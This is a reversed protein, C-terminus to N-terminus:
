PEVVELSRGSAAERGAVACLTVEPAAAAEHRYVPKGERLALRGTPTLAKMWVRRGEPDEADVDLELEASARVARSPVTVRRVRPAAPEAAEPPKRV